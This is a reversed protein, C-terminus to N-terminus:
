ERAIAKMDYAIRRIRELGERVDAVIAREEEAGARGALRAALTDAGSKVYALPNAIEHAISAALRTVISLRDSQSRRREDEVAKEKDRADAARAARHASRLKVFGFVGALMAAAGGLAAGLAFELM